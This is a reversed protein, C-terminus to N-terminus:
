KWSLVQQMNRGIKRNLQSIVFSYHARYNIENEYLRPKILKFQKVVLDNIVKIKAQKNLFKSCKMIKLMLPLREKGLAPSMYKTLYTNGYSILDVNAGRKILWSLIKYRKSQMFFTFCNGGSTNLIDLNIRQKLLLKFIGFYEKDILSFPRTRQALFELADLQYPGLLTFDAGADAFYKTMKFNVTEIAKYYLPYTRLKTNSDVGLVLLRKVIQLRKEKVATILAKNGSISKLKLKMDDSIPNKLLKLIKKDNIINNGKLDLLELIKEMTKKLVKITIM